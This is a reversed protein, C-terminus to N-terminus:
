VDCECEYHSICVCLCSSLYMYVPMINYIYIYIYICLCSSLYMCVPMILSSHVPVELEVCVCKSGGVCQNFYPMEFAGNERWILHVMRGGYSHAIRGGYSIRLEGAMDICNVYIYM